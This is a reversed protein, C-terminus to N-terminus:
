LINLIERIAYYEPNLLRPLSDFIFAVTSVLWAIGIICAIVLYTVFTSELANDYDHSTRDKNTLRYINYHKSYLSLSIITLILCFINFAANTRAKIAQQKVLITYVHEAPQKLKTSLVSIGQEIKETVYRVNPDVKTSDQAFAPISLIITIILLGIFRKM